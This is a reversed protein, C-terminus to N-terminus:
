PRNMPHYQAKRACAAAKRTQWFRHLDVDQLRKERECGM